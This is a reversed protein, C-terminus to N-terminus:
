GAHRHGEQRRLLQVVDRVFKYVAPLLMLQSGPLSAKLLINGVGAAVVSVTRVMELRSALAVRVANLHVQMQNSGVGPAWMTELDGQWSVKTLGIPTSGLDTRVRAYNIVAQRVQEVFDLWARTTEQEEPDMKLKLGYSVPSRLQDITWALSSKQAFLEDAPSFSIQEPPGILALELTARDLHQRTLALAHAQATLFMLADDPSPPLSIRRIPARTERDESASFAVGTEPEAAWIGLPDLNAQLTTDPM